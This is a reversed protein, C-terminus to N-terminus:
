VQHIGPLLSRYGEIVLDRFRQSVEPSEPYGHIIMHYRDHDSDNYVAHEFNNAFLFISGCNNFPVTGQGKVVLKCGNPNWIGVNVANLRYESGDTHPLIYGGPKVKMFRVRHYVDYPFYSELWFRTYPADIDTWTYPVSDNSLDEYEKYVQYHDTHSQSIGHICVSSWGYSDTDRHEHYTAQSAEGYIVPWQAPVYLPIYPLNSETVIWEYDADKPLKSFDPSCQSNSTIFTELETM